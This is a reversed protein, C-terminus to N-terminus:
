HARELTFFFTAGAGPEAEAWIRGGHRTVVHHASALGVGTGEFDEAEHLRQFPEFLRAGHAPDFGAGNDAVFYVAEGAEKRFGVRVRAQDQKRTFKIANSLLNELLVRVLAPDGSAHPLEGLELQLSRGELAASHERWLEEVLARVDIRSRRLPQRGLRALALLAGAMERMRGSNHHIRELLERAEPSLQNSHEALLRGSFASIVRIPASLDHSLTGAFADLERNKSKLEANAREVALQATRLETVDHAVVVHGLLQGRRDRLPTASCALHLEASGDTVTFERRREEEGSLRDLLPSWAPLLALASRGILEGRALALHRLLAPNADVIRAWPDLVVVFDSLHELVLDRAVPVLDLTRHKFLGWAIFLNGFAFTFPSVDRYVEPVWGSLTALVGCVPVATGSAVLVSQERFPPRSRWAHQALLGMAAAFLALGYLTVVWTPWTFSYVLATLDGSQVLRADPRVLHHWGDTFVLGLYPLTVAAHAAAVPRSLLKERETYAAAFYFFAVCWGTTGLFQLDDWFIKAKLSSSSLELAHGFTWWAQGLAALAFPAAGRVTRHRWAYLALAGQLAFAVLSALYLTSGM